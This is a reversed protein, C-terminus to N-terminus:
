PRPCSILYEAVERVQEVTYPEGKIHPVRKTALYIHIMRCLEPNISKTYAKQVELQSVHNSALLQYTLWRFQQNFTSFESLFSLKQCSHEEIFKDLKALSHKPDRADPYDRFLAVKFAKLDSPTAKFEPLTEWDMRIDRELYCTCKVLPNLQAAEELLEYNYLYDQLTSPCEPDFHPAECAHQFPLPVPLAM